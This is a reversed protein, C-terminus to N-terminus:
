NLDPVLDLNQAKELVKFSVSSVSLSKSVHLQNHPYPLRKLDWLALNAFYIPSSYESFIVKESSNKNKMLNKIQDITLLKNDLLQLADNFCEEADHIRLEPM